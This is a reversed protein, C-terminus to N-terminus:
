ESVPYVDYNTGNHTVRRTKVEFTGADDNRQGLITVNAGVPVVDANLGARSTRPAPALTLEWVQGSADRIQMNAHPGALSVERVVTGSLEIMTTNGSWGHHAAAPLALCLLSAASGISVFASQLKM